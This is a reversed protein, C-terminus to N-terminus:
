TEHSSRCGCHSSSAGRSWERGRDSVQASFKELWEDENKAESISAPTAMGALNPNTWTTKGTVKNAWYKRKHQESYKEAWDDTGDESTTTTEAASSTQPAPNTWSTKGTVKNAWYKRKHQESYKEVWDNGSSEVTTGGGAGAPNVAETRETGTGSTPNTWTTKGTVKNAWYKRKHQESYKEVWDEM